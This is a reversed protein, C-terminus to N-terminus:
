CYKVKQEPNSLLTAIFEKTNILTLTKYTYYLYHINAINITLCILNIM